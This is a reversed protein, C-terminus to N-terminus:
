IVKILTPKLGRAFSDTRNPNDEKAYRHGRVQSRRSHAQTVTTLLRIQQDHLCQAIDYCLHKRTRHGIRRLHQPPRRPCHKRGHTRYDILLVEGANWPYMCPSSPQRRPDLHQPLYAGQPWADIPRRRAERVVAVLQQINLFRAKSVVQRLILATKLAAQSHRM